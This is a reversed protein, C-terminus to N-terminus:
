LGVLLMYPFSVGDPARGRVGPNELCRAAEVITKRLIAPTEAPCV